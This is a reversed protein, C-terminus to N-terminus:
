TSWRPTTARPPSAAADSRCSQWSSARGEFPFRHRGRGRVTEPDVVRARGVRPNLDVQRRRLGCARGGACHAPDARAHRQGGAAGRPGHAGRIRRTAPGHLPAISKVTGSVFTGVTVIAVGVVAEVKAVAPAVIASAPVAESSAATVCTVQVFLLPPLPMAVPVALQDTAETGTTTPVLRIVTVARSAAPLTAVSTNVTVFVSACPGESVMAAGADPEEVVAAVTATLPVALSSTPTVWTVQILSRPPLPVAEPVVAQDIAATASRDPALTM